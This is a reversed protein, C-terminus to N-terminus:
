EESLDEVPQYPSAPDSVLRRPVFEGREVLSGEDLPLFSSGQMVLELARRRDKADAVARLVEPQQPRPEREWDARLSATFFGFTATFAEEPDFYFTSGDELAFSTLRDRMSKELRRLKDRTGM